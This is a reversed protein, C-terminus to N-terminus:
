PCIGGVPNICCDGEDYENGFETDSSDVCWVGTTGEKNANCVLCGDDTPCGDIRDNKGYWGCSKNEKDGPGGGQGPNESDGGGGNGKGKYPKLARLNEAQSTQVIVALILIIASIFKM